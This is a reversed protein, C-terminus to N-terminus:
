RVAPPLLWGLKGAPPLVIATNALRAGEAVTVLWSKERLRKVWLTVTAGPPIALTMIVAAPTPPNSLGIESLQEEIEPRVQAKLGVVIVGPDVAVDAKIM